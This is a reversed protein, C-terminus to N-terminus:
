PTMAPASSVLEGEIRGSVEDGDATGFADFVIRGVGVFGLTQLGVAGTSVQGRLVIGYTEFGHLKLEGARLHPAGLGFQFLTFSGDPNGVTIRLAKGLANPDLSEGAAAIVYLPTLPAGQLTVNVSNGVVANTAALNGWTTKFTIELPTNADSRCSSLTREEFTWPKAPADLEAVIRARRGLVFAKIAAVGGPRASESTLKAIAEIQALLKAQDWHADVLERLVGRYRERMEPLAYLRRPLRAWALASRPWSDNPLFPHRDQYTTDTGWPIFRLKRSQSEVYVFFNNLDGSYGDWHGVLSESAWFRLFEDLDLLEELAPVLEEDPLTLADALAELEPGQPLDENTKKEFAGLMDDRFDAGGSGEYLDGDDDGYHQRLFPKKVPQVSVYVGLSEGNVTVHVFGCRPAPIGAAAFQDYSLCQAAYSGDGLSNNLTIAKTSGLAQEAVYEDLDIRLSPRFASISGLYGKKRVGVDAFTHAGVQVKAHFKTYDFGARDCDSFVENISKGESKLLEWDEGALEIKVELLESRPFLDFEPDPDGAAPRAGADAEMGSDSTTEPSSDSCATLLAVAYLSLWAPFRAALSYLHMLANRVRVFKGRVSM